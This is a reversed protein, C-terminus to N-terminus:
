QFGDINYYEYGPLNSDVDHKWTKGYENLDFDIVFTSVKQFSM